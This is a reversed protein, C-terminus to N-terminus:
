SRKRASGIKWNTATKEAAHRMLTRARTLRIQDELEIDQPERTVTPTTPQKRTAGPSM